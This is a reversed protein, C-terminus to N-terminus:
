DEETENQLILESKLLFAGAAVVLDGPKLGSAVVQRDGAARGLQVPHLHFTRRDSADPTFVATRGDIEVVAGAPVSLADETAASDLAIRVFMGLKFMGAPNPTQALLPVTRTLPDVMSGISLLKAEFTRGPYAPASLRISGDRLAPLLAFDSEPINATVWVTSLDALTFLVDNMEAKQSPVAGPTRTIITGDFPAVITYATVDEDVLAAADQAAHALLDAINEANGLIRLRQAADVVAGEALRVQQDAVRKQQAADFRVQELEAEFRAQAGERTHMALFAPHEGVIKRQLFYSQKSEEHSAIEFESYAQLLRARNAGLPRDAFQKELTSAPVSKRLLPILEAVNAAIEDRWAAETRATALERQRNRLNLRATGVDASDLLVLVDGKKVDQGLVVHVSRIVGAARPRIEVRRNTNAEIRGAVGVETPLAMVRAPKTRVGAAKLKGEPLTVTTALGSAPPATPAAEAEPRRPSAGLIPRHFLTDHLLNAAVLALCVGLVAWPLVRQLARTARRPKTLTVSM